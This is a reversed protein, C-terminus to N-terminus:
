STAFLSEYKAKFSRQPTLNAACWFVVLLCFFFVFVVFAFCFPPLTVSSNGSNNNNNKISVIHRWKIKMIWLALSTCLRLATAQLVCVCIRTCTGVSLRVHQAVGLPLCALRVRRNSSHMFHAAVAARNTTRNPKCVNINKNNYNSGSNWQPIKISTRVNGCLQVHLLAKRLVLLREAGAISVFSEMAFLPLLWPSLLLWLAAAIAVAVIMKLVNGCELAPLLAYILTHPLVAKSLKHCAMLVVMAAAPQLM